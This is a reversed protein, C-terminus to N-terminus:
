RAHRRAHEVEDEAEEEHWLIREVHATDEASYIRAGTSLILASGTGFAYPELARVFDPRIWIRYDGPGHPPFPEVAKFGHHAPTDLGTPDFIRDPSEMVNLIFGQRALLLSGTGCDHPKIAGIDHAFARVVKPPTTGLQTLRLPKM